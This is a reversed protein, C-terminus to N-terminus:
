NRYSYRTKFLTLRRTFRTAIVSAKMTCSLLRSLKLVAQAELFMTGFLRLCRFMTDFWLFAGSYQLVDVDALEMGRINSVVDSITCGCLVPVCQWECRSDSQVWLTGTYVTVWMTFRVTCGCLVPACQWECRSDSQAGVSYRYVSDSVDHIQSHVWLTGTCVTVWMTFRVTCGCLVPACQWECRPCPASM